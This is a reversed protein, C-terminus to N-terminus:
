LDGAIHCVMCAANSAPGPKQSDGYHPYIDYHCTECDYSTLETPHCTVCAVVWLAPDEIPTAANDTYTGHPTRAPHEYTDEAWDRLTHCPGCDWTLLPDPDTYHDLSSRDPEHCQMCVQSDSLGQHEPITTPTTATDTGIPTGSDPPTPTPTTYTVIIEWGDEVHCNACDVGSHHNPDPRDETHCDICATALATPARDCGRSAGHCSECALGTHKGLLRFEPNKGGHPILQTCSLVGVLALLPVLLFRHM